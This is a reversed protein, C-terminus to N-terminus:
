RVAAAQQPSISRYFHSLGLAPHHLQHGRQGGRSRRGAPLRLTSPWAIHPLVASDACEGGPRGLHFPGQRKRPCPLFRIAVDGALRLRGWM